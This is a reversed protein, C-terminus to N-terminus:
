KIQKIYHLPTMLKAAIRNDDFGKARLQKVTEELPDVETPVEVTHYLLVEDSLFHEEYTLEPLPTEKYKAM